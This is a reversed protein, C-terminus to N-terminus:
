GPPHSWEVRTYLAMARRLRRENRPHLKRPVRIRIVRTGFRTAALLADMLARASDPHELTAEVPV